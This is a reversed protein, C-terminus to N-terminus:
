FHRSNAPESRAMGSTKYKQCMVLGREALIEEVDRYSVGYRLYFYVAHVIVDKPFEAGKFSIMM